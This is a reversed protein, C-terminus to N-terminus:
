SEASQDLGSPDVQARFRVFTHFSDRRTQDDQVLTCESTRRVFKTISNKFQSPCKAFNCRPCDCGLLCQLLICQFWFHSNYDHSYFSDSHELTPEGDPFALRENIM